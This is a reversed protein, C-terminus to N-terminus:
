CTGPLSLTRLRPMPARDQKRSPEARVAARGAKVLRSAFRAPTVAESYYFGQVEDCGWDRVRDLQAENEVGEAVVTADLRKALAVMGAGIAEDRESRGPGSVYSRDIKVVDVPLDKLYSIASNGSGFDDISIRVGLQKLEQVIAVIEPGQNLVGRESLELELLEPEVDHRELLERVLAVVNGDALQCLSLNVAVRIRPLEEDQWRRIQSVAERLVFEGIRVMLGSREAAPVFEAPSIPGEVPHDWRLLAEAAVVEARNGHMIPQYALRLEDNVLAQRMMSEIRLARRGAADTAKNFFRFSSGADKAACMAHEACELLQDGNAADIPFLAAGMTASLYVSQGNVEFPQEMDSQIADRLRVLDDVGARSLVLGFRVGGIRGGAATLTMGADGGVVYHDQLRNRLREAFQFLIANGAEHGVTTNVQRFRDVGVVLIGTTEGVPAGSIARQLLSRFLERNPLETLSDIGRMEALNREADAANLRAIKLARTTHELKSRLEAAEAERRAFRSIKEWHFPREVADAKGSESVERTERQNTCLALIPTYETLESRLQRYAKEGFTGTMSADVIVLTRTQKAAKAIVDQVSEVKEVSFGSFSLWRPGWELAEADRSLLLLTGLEAEPAGGAAPPLRNGSGQMIELSIIKRLASNM